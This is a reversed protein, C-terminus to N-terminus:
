LAHTSFSRTFLFFIKIQKSIESRRKDLKHYKSAEIANILFDIYRQKHTYSLTKWATKASFNIVLFMKKLFPAHPFKRRRKKSFGLCFTKWKTFKKDIFFFITKWSTLYYVPHTSLRKVFENFTKVGEGQGRWELSHNEKRETNKKCM